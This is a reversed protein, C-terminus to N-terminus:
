YKGNKAAKMKNIDQKVIRRIYKLYYFSRLFSYFGKSITGREELSRAIRIEGEHMKKLNSSLGSSGYFLKFPDQWVLSSPLHYYGYGDACVQLCFGADEMHSIGEEFGGVAEFVNKKVLICSPSPFSKLCLDKVTARYLSDIRRGLIRLSIDNFNCGLFDIEPHAEIARCQTAIKEPLWLDDSDLFALWQGLATKVGANRATSVGGNEKNILHIVIDQHAAIYQEIIKRSQDTSGDNVVIVEKIMDIATQRQVSDLVQAITDESNFVPIIVSIDM